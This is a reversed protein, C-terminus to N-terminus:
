ETPPKEDLQDSDFCEIASRLIDSVLPIKHKNCGDNIIRRFQRGNRLGRFLGYIPRLLMSRSVGYKEQQEDCYRSYIEIIERRSYGPNQQGFIRRDADAFSWPDHWAQRGLM